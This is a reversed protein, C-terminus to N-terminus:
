PWLRGAAPLGGKQWSSLLDMSWAVSVHILVGYWISRTRMALTGLIVGAAISGLSEAAPKLVPTMHIACYPIVMVFIALSGLARELGFLLYGRFFYEVFLFTAGYQLEWCLLDFWSRRAEEYFPYTQQFAPSFSVAFLVPLIGGFLLLYIWKGIGHDADRRPRLALGYDALRGGLLRVHLAPLLFFGVLKAGSWWSFALLDHFPRLSPNSNIAAGFLKNFFPRDGWYCECVILLTSLLLIQAAQGDLRRDGGQGAEARLQAARADIWAWSEPFWRVLRLRLLWRLPTM